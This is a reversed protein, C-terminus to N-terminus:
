HAPLATTALFDHVLQNYRAPDSNWAEVHEAGPFEAYQMPWGIRRSAAYFDRNMQPPAQTDADGQLVLLPPKVTPPHTLLDLAAWDDGTRWEIIKDTLDVVFGPVGHQKGAYAAVQPMSTTPADMVVATVTDALPSHTLFQGNIQGGNSESYLVIRHAGHGQAYRVAAEVDRWESGGLHLLHDPSRPAAEDNRYGLVLMPLGLRHLVPAIPLMAKRQGNQGHVAVVWTTAAPDQAPILWSVAPGLETPVTVESYDLGLGTKPDSPVAAGVYVSTGLPPTAGALLPRTVKGPAEAVIDGVQAFAGDWSMWYTGRHRADPSSATLVVNKGAGANEVALVTDQRPGHDVGIEQDAFWWAVGFTGGVLAVVLVAAVLVLSRRWWRRRMGPAPDDSPAATIEQQEVSGSM